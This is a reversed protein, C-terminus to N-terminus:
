VSCSLLVAAAVAAGAPLLLASAATGSSSSRTADPADLTTRRLPKKGTRLCARSM